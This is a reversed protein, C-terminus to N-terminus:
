GSNTPVFVFLTSLALTFIAKSKNRNLLGFTFFLSLSNRWGQLANLAMPSPKPGVQWPMSEKPATRSGGLSIVEWPRPLFHTLSHIFLGFSLVVSCPSDSVHTKGSGTQGYAFCTAMSGEFISRVLPKATFRLVIIAHIFFVGHTKLIRISVLM